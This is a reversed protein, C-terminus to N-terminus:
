KWKVEGALHIAGDGFTSRLSLSSFRRLTAMLLDFQQQAQQHARGQQVARAVFFDHNSQLVDALTDATLEFQMDRSVVADDAPPAHHQDILDRCLGLSSSVIMKNGIWAAAPLFNFVLPLREGTPKDLYKGYAIQTGRYEESTMVLPQRGQQGAQINLIASFTQFFLRFVDAAEAPQNLEVVAAFGPLKVGPMGGLHSFDQQAALLTIQSGLLPLVDTGFDKGPLLNGLGSEFKDFGPLVQEALLDERHLYWRTFDRRISFSGVRGDPHWNAASAPLDHSPFFSQHADSLDTVECPVVSHIVIESKRIDLTAAVFPSEAAGEILGGLLISALANDLKKPLLRPAAESRLADLAIYSTVLHGAGAEEMAAQYNPDSSLAIGQDRFTLDLAQQLRHHSTSVLLWDDRIAIHFRKQLELLEAGAYISSSIKDDALVLLPDARERLSQLSETDAAQIVALVDPESKSRGHYVAVGIRKGLLQQVLTPLNVGLQTTVIQEVAKAQRFQKSDSLANLVAGKAVDDAFAWKRDRLVDGLGKVEIYAVAETPFSDALDSSAQAYAPLLLLLWPCSLGPWFWHHVNM